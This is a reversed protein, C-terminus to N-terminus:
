SPENTPPKDTTPSYLGLAQKTVIKLRKMEDIKREATRTTCSLVNEIAVTMDTFKLKTAGDFVEAALKRLEARKLGARAINNAEVSVHMRATDSWAFRPGDKKLIPARRMKESFVVTVADNKKLRLNSEAKRELQSGLHGRM